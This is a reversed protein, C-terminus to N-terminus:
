SNDSDVSLNWRQTAARPVNDHVYEGV